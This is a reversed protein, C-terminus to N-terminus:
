EVVLWFGCGDMRGLSVCVWGFKGYGFVYCGLVFCGGFIGVVVFFVGILVVIFWGLDVEVVDGCGFIDGGM